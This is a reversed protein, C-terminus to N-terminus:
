SKKSPRKARVEPLAGVTPGERRKPRPPPEAHKPRPAAQPRVLRVKPVKVKAFRKGDIDKRKAVIRYSFSINSKGQGQERVQFGEKGRHSVYLSNLDGYPTLFVHYRDTKVVSLFGSELKVNARGKVLRAEGFDEFWSEPSEVSYLMRHSGDRHPIAASKAGLVTLDGTIIVPGDFYGAAVGPNSDDGCSALLGIFENSSAQVGYGHQASGAVGVGRVGEGWVGIGFRGGGDDSSGHVGIGVQATGLVGTNREPGLGEGYVGFPGVGDVGAGPSSFGQVGDNNNSEGIVGVYTQSVGLVGIASDSQGVVGSATGGVGSGYVGVGTQSHGQVGQASDSEGLVGTAGGGVGTGYVGVNKGRGPRPDPIPGPQPAGSGAAGVVGTGRRTGGYGIVGTGELNGWALIADVIAITPVDLATGSVQLVPAGEGGIGVYGGGAVIATEENVGNLGEAQMDYSM